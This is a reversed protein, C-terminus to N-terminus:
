RPISDKTKLRARGEKIAQQVYIDLSDMVTTRKFQRYAETQRIEAKLRPEFGTSRDSFFEEELVDRKKWVTGRVFFLQITELAFWALIFIVAGWIVRKITKKMRM